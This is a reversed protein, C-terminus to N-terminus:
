ALPKPFTCGAELYSKEAQQPRRHQGCCASLFKKSPRLGELGGMFTSTGTSLLVGIYV